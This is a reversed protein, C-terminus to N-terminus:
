VETRAFVRRAIVAILVLSLAWGVPTVVPVDAGAALAVAWAGIGSPMAAAVEGSILSALQPLFTVGVGIGAVAAASSIRTGLAISLGIYFAPVASLTAALLALAGLDPVSGYTVTAVVTGIVLPLLVGFVVYMATGATWKALLLADRSLPKSLSWALTGKDREGVLLSMAAFISIFTVWQDWNAGILNRTSDLSIGPLAGAGEPPFTAQLWPAITVMSVLLSTVLFVIGARRSAWWETAEKRFFPGFGM